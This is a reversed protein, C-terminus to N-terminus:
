GKVGVRAMIPTWDDRLCREFAARDFGGERPGLSDLPAGCKACYHTHDGAIYHTHCQSCVFLTASM